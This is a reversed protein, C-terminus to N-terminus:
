RYRPVLLPQGPVVGSSALDNLERIREVVAEVPYGPAVRAAVSSLSEGSRVYVVATGTPDPAVADAYNNGVIVLVWVGAALLAGVLVGTASARRRAITEWSAIQRPDHGPATCRTGAPVPTRHGSRRPGAGHHGAPRLPALRDHTSTTRRAPEAFTAAM